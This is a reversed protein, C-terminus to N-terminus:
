EESDSAPAEYEENLIGAIMGELEDVVNSYLAAKLDPNAGAQGIEEDGKVLACDWRGGENKMATATFKERCTPNKKWVAHGEVTVSNDETVVTYIHVHVENIETGEENCCIFEGDDWSHLGFFSKAVEGLLKMTFAEGDLVRQVVPMRQMVPVAPLKLGNGASEHANAKSANVQQRNAHDHTSPMMNM